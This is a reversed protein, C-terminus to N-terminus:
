FYIEIFNIMIISLFHVVSLFRYNMIFVKAQYKRCIPTITLMSAELAISRTNLVRAPWVLLQLIPIQQNEELCAANLLLLLSQDQLCLYFSLKFSLMNYFILKFVMCDCITLSYNNKLTLEAIKWSDWPIQQQPTIKTSNFSFFTNKTKMILNYM